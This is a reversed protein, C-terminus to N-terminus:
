RPDIFMRSFGILGWYYYSLISMPTSGRGGYRRAMILPVHNIIREELIVAENIIQEGLHLHHESKGTM